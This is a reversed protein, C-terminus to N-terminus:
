QEINDLNVLCSKSSRKFHGRHSLMNEMNELTQVTIIEEKYLTYIHLKRDEKKRLIHTINSLPIRHIIGGADKVDLFKITEKLEKM